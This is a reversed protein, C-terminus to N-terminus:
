LRNLRNDLIVLRHLALVSDGFIVLMVIVLVGMPMGTILFIGQQM